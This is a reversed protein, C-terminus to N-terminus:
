PSWPGKYRVRSASLHVWMGEGQDWKPALVGGTSLSRVAAMVHDRVNEPPGTFSQREYNDMLRSLTFPLCSPVIDLHSHLPTLNQVLRCPALQFLQGCWNPTECLDLCSEGVCRSASSASAAM